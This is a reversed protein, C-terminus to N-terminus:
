QESRELEDRVARPLEDVRARQSQELAKVYAAVAWREPVGLQYDFAPMLGYGITIIRYLRGPPFSAIEPDLLSPPKRLQMKAAVPSDGDGLVGHCTACVIEFRDHGAQLLERTVPMPFQVAYTGNERGDLLLASGIVAERAVTGKVVSRMARGDDFLESQGYAEYRPQELMRSLTWEPERINESSDCGVLAGAAALAFLVLARTV